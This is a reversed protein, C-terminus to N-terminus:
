RPIPKGKILTGLEVSITKAFANRVLRKKLNTIFMTDRM